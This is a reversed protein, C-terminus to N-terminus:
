KMFFSIEPTPLDPIGTVWDYDASLLRKRSRLVEAVWVDKKATKNPINEGALALEERCHEVTM